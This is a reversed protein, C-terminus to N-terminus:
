DRILSLISQLLRSRLKVSPVKETIEAAFGKVLIDCADKRDLGRSQLYFVEEDDLQSVTAGHACKVDNAVIELQPKTDM